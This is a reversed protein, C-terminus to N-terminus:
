YGMIKILWPWYFEIVLVLVLVSMAGVRWGAKLFDTLRVLGTAYIIMCAPAAVASFYGFASSIATAMGMMLPHGGLNMMIPGLVAVTASSSIVNSLLTTLMIATFYPLFEFRQLLDQFTYIFSEGIWEATGTNKMQIGLSIAAAFLLIVGWNTNKSLTNWDVLGVAMYLFAGSIAIIGMGIKENLFVWGLFTLVFIGIALMEHGSFKGKHAVQVKLKRVPTDLIKIESKFAINLLISGFFIRVIVMPYAILIWQFYSLSIAPDPINNLYALMLANRAGGSPTGISGITCGYAISFLLLATLNPIKRHGSVNKILTLAVPLMMAVVTHEGIFSSLIASIALFGFTIRKVSNGTLKIIGLALRTDLGQHVIAVGMMLSGMIFFVSDNMYSQAVEAPPAIRFSVELIAILLAVAPLPVPETIILMIVMIGLILTRYGKVSISEPYPLWYM